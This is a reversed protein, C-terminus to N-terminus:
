NGMPGSGSGSGTFMARFLFFVLSFLFFTSMYDLISTPATMDISVNADSETLTQWLQETQVIRTDGYNGEDDEYVAISQNPKVVVQPFENNKLGKVFDSYTRPHYAREKKTQVQVSPAVPLQQAISFM